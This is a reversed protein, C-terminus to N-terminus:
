HVNDYNIFYEERNPDLDYLKSGCSFGDILTMMPWGIFTNTNIEDAVPNKILNSCTEKSLNRELYVFSKGTNMMKTYREIPRNTCNHINEALSIKDQIKSPHVALNYHIINRTLPTNKRDFINGRNALLTKQAEGQKKGQTRYTNGNLVQIQFFRASLGAWSLIVLLSIVTIRPRFKLYTKTIM